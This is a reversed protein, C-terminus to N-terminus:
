IRRRENRLPYLRVDGAPNFDADDPRRAPFYPDARRRAGQVGHVFDDAVVGDTVAGSRRDTRYRQFGHLLASTARDQGGMGKRSESRAAIPLHLLGQRFQSVAAM